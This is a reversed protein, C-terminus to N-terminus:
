HTEFSNWFCGLKTAVYPELMHLYYHDKDIPIFTFWYDEMLRLQPKIKKGVVERYKKKNKEDSFKYKKINELTSLKSIKAHVATTAANEDIKYKGKVKAMLYAWSASEQGFSSVHEWIRHLIQQSIGAYLFQFKDDMGKEAFVYFGTYDNNDRNSKCNRAGYDKSNPGNKKDGFIKKCVTAFREEKKGENRFDRVQICRNLKFNKRIEEVLTRFEPVTLKLNFKENKYNQKIM